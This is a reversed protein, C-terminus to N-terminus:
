DYYTRGNLFESIHGSSRPYIKSFTVRLRMDDLTIKEEERIIVYRKMRRKLMEWGEQSIEISFRESSEKEKIAGIIRELICNGFRTYAESLEVGGIENLYAGALYFREKTGPASKEFGKAIHDAIAIVCATFTTFKLRPALGTVSKVVIGERGKKELDKMINVLKNYDAISEVNFIPVSEIAYKELLEQRQLPLLLDLNYDKRIKFIDFVLVKPEDGYINSVHNYPNPGILEGYVCLHPFDQFFELLNNDQQVIESTYPCVYGGRTFALIKHKEAVYILRMNTGDIKEEVIFNADAFEKELANRLVYARPIKPYSPIVKEKIKVTGRVTEDSDKADREYEIEQYELKEVITKKV